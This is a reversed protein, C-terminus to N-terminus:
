VWSRPDLAGWDTLQLCRERSCEPKSASATITRMPKRREGAANGGQQASCPYVM